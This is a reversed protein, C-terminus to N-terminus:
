ELHHNVKTCTEALVAIHEMNKMPVSPQSDPDPIQVKSSRPCAQGIPLCCPHRTAMSSSRHCSGCQYRVKRMQTSPALRQSSRRRKAPRPSGLTLCRRMIELVPHAEADVGGDTTSKAQSRAACVSAPRAFQDDEAHRAASSSRPAVGRGSADVWKTREGSGLSTSGIGPRGAEQRSVDLSEVADLNTPASVGDARADGVEGVALPERADSALVIHLLPPEGILTRRSVSTSWPPIPGRGSPEASRQQMDCSEVSGDQTSSSEDPGLPPTQDRSLGTYPSPCRSDADFVDGIELQDLLPLLNQKPQRALRPMAEADTCRDGGYHVSDSAGAGSLSEAHRGTVRMKSPTQDQGVDVCCGNAENNEHNLGTDKRRSATGNRRMPLGRSHDERWELNDGQSGTGSSM